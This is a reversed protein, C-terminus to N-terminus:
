PAGAPKTDSSQKVDTPQSPQPSPNQTPPYAWWVGSFLTLIQATSTSEPIHQSSSRDMDGAFFSEAAAAGDTVRANITVRQFSFDAAFVGESIHAADRIVNDRVSDISGTQPIVRETLVVTVKQERPDITVTSVSANASLGSQRSLLSQLTAERESLATVPAAQESSPAHPLTQQENNGKPATLTSPLSGKSFPASPLKPHSNPDSPFSGSDMSGPLTGTSITARAGKSNKMSVVIIVVTVFFLACVVWIVRFWLNPALGILKQTGIFTSTSRPKKADGPQGSNKGLAQKAERLKLREASRGPQADLVLQYWQAAEEYKAQDRYIDGLLSQADVNKPDLRMADVCRAEADLWKSRMRLLNAESLLAEARSTSPAPASGEPAGFKAGCASCFYSGSTM